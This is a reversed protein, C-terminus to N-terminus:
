KILAKSTELASINGDSADSIEFSMSTRVPIRSNPSITFHSLDPADHHDPTSGNGNKNGSPIQAELAKREIRPIGSPKGALLTPIKVKPKPLLSPKKLNQAATPPRMAIKVSSQYTKPTERKQSNDITQLQLTSETEPLKSAAVMTTLNFMKMDEKQILSSGDAIMEPKIINHSRNKWLNNIQKNTKIICFMIWFCIM